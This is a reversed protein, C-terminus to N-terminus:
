YLKHTPSSESYIITVAPLLNKLTPATAAKKKRLVAPARLKTRPNFVWFGSTSYEMFGLINYFGLILFFAPSGTGRKTDM